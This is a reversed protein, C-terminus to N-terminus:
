DLHGLVQYYPRHKDLYEKGQFQPDYQMESPSPLISVDFDLISQDGIEVSFM